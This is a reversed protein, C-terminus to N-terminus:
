YHVSVFCTAAYKTGSCGFFSLAFFAFQPNFSNRYYIMRVMQVFSGCSLVAYLAQSVAYSAHLGAALGPSISGDTALDHWSAM